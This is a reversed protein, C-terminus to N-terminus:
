CSLDLIVIFIGGDENGWKANEQTYHTWKSDWNTKLHLVDWPHIEFLENEMAELGEFQNAM